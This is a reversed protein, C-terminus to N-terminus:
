EMTKSWTQLSNASTSTTNTCVVFASHFGDYWVITTREMGSVSCIKSFVSWLLIGFFQLM